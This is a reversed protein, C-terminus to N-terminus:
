GKTALKGGIAKEVVSLAIQSQDRRKTPKAPKKKAAPKPKTMRANYCPPTAPVRQLCTQDIGSLPTFCQMLQATDLRTGVFFVPFAFRPCICRQNM